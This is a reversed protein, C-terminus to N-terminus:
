CGSRRSASAPSSCRTTSSVPWRSFPWRSWRASSPAWATWRGICESLGAWSPPPTSLTILADRPASRLGKGARDATVALGIAAVSGGAALFGLKAVASLGYGVGAVAKRRRVRDALYGGVLGLLVTAGTYAGDVAGYAAPSLQLGIILYLPLIATVMESSIDTVMSVTGLAFVNASVAGAARGTEGPGAAAESPQDHVSVRAHM